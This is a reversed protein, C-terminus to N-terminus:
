AAGGILHRMWYWGALNFVGGVVVCVVGVPSVLTSRVAPEALALLALVGLPVTSLVKASLRAQASNATRESREASRAHLTAAVRELPMAAPGGLEACAALVPVVLGTASTPDDDGATEALADALGRGRTLAHVVPRFAAAGAPTAAGAQVVAHALSSGARVGRAVQVCWDAIDDNDVRPQQRWRGRRSSRAAARPSVAVFSRTPVIWRSCRGAVLVLAVAVLTVVVVITM